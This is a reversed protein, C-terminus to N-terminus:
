GLRRLLRRGARVVPAPVRSRVRLTAAALRKVALARLASLRQAASARAVKRGVTMTSPVFQVDAFRGSRYVRRDAVRSSGAFGITDHMILHGGEILRPEWLDFDLSVMDFTHNGDIFLLEIPEDAPIAEAAAASTLCHTTIVDDVAARAINQRYSELLKGTRPDIAHVHVTHGSAKAGMALCITSRGQHSGIEVISGRGTCRKALTYLTEAEEDSLWGAVGELRRRLEAFEEPPAGRGTRPLSTVDPLVRISAQRPV